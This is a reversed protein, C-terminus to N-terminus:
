GGNPWAGTWITNAIEVYNDSQAIFENAGAPLGNGLLNWGSASADEALQRAQGGASGLLYVPLNRERALRVEEDLGPKHAGLESTRGGVAITASRGSANVMEERMRTLSPDRGSSVSDVPIVVAQTELAAIAERTAFYRSWYVTLSEQPLGLNRVAETLLPVFTPHGGCIIRGGLGLWRTSLTRVADIVQGHLAVNSPFAGLLLMSEDHASSREFVREPLLRGLYDGSHEMVGFDSFLKAAGPLPDLMVAADFARCNVEHPGYHHESLWTILDSQDDDTPHRAFLQVIHMQDRLPYPGVQNPGSIAFIQNRADLDEVTRGQRRVESAIAAFTQTAARLNSRNLEDVKSLILEVFRGVDASDDLDTPVQSADIHPSGGPRVAIAPRLEDDPGVRIWVIPIGRGLATALEKAVWISEGAKYTDLFVLVDALDLASDIVEQAPDGVQIDVLDRFFPSHIQSLQRDIAAALAEGDSRRHCLFLRVKDVALTPAVKALAEQAFERAAPRFDPWNVGRRRLSDTVDFSQSTSVAEPPERTEESMAIPLVVAGAEIGSRLLVEVGDSVSADASANAFVIGDGYRVQARYAAVESSLRAVVSTEMESAVVELFPGASEPAGTLIPDLVYVTM